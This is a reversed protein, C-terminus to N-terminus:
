RLNNIMQWMDDATKLASSSLQFARQTVIMDTMETSIDVNSNEIYGQYIDRNKTEIVTTGEKPIFLSKGVSIFDGDGVPKYTKIDGVKLTTGNNEISVAGNGDVSFGDKGFNIPGGPVNIENGNADTISLRHGNGNVLTGLADVKFSGDRTYAVTGDETYVKFLGEGDIALDTKIKTNKLSGQTQIRVSETSKVGTGVYLKNKADDSIPIGLRDLSSEYLDQFGSSLKKYGNTQVNVLNNSIIDLKNQQANMASMNTYFMGYM